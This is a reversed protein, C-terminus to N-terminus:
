VNVHFINFNKLYTVMYRFIMKSIDYFIDSINTYIMYTVVYKM